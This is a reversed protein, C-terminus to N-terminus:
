AAKPVNNEKVLKYGLNRMSVIQAKLKLQKLKGRLHSVYVEVYNDSTMESDNWVYALIREKALVQEPYRLFLELMKAEKATLELGNLTYTQRDFKLDGFTVVEDKLSPPRRTLARLRAILEATKFPKALYDDAGVNLAKIKDEVEALASLMIIPTEIKRERLTRLIEWGSIKPLMIDLVICDYEGHLASKLGKEGDDTWDVAIEAKQLLHIVAEALYTEDEIYLVRVSETYVLKKFGTM